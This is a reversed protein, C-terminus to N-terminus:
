AASRRSGLWETITPQSVGLVEAITKRDLGTLELMEAHRRKRVIRAADLKPPCITQDGAIDCLRLMADMGIDRALPHSPSAKGPVYLTKGGYLECIIVTPIIGITKFIEDIESSYQWTM